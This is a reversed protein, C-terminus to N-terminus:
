ILGGFDVIVADGEIEPTQSTMEAALNMSSASTVPSGRQTPNLFTSTADRLAAPRLAVVAHKHGIKSSNGLM